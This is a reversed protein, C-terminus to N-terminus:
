PRPPCWAGRARAAPAAKFDQVFGNPGLGCGSTCYAGGCNLSAQVVRFGMDQAVALNKSEDDFVVSAGYDEVPIQYHQAINQYMSNKSLASSACDQLVTCSFQFAPSAFFESTFIDPHLERLFDENKRSWQSKSENTSIAIHYGADVCDQITQRAADTTGSHAPWGPQVSDDLAIGLAECVEPTADEGHTLTNDFDFICVRPVRPDIKQRNLHPNYSTGAM